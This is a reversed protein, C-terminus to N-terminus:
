IHPLESAARTAIANLLDRKVAARKGHELSLHEALEAARRTVGLEISAYLGPFIRRAPEGFAFEAAIVLDVSPTRSLREIKSITSASYGGLLAGLEPQSLSWSHRHTALYSPYPFERMSILRPRAM